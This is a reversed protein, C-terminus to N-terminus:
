RRSSGGSGRRTQSAITPFLRGVEITTTPTGGGSSKASQTVGVIRASAHIGWLRHRATVLDGLDFDVGYQFRGGPNVTVELADETMTELLKAQTRTDLGGAGVAIDNADVFLERRDWGTPEVAGLFAEVTERAAGEGQGAGLGWNKKGLDSTLWELGAATDFEPDLFVAGTLDQGEIVDFTFTGTEIDFIVEWGMSTVLGIDGLVETVPQFRAEYDVAVGRALDPAIVLGPLRRAVTAGPGAHLNVYHKMATEAVVATQVDHSAGSPPLVIREALMGGAERGTFSVTEVENGQDDAAYGRHVQEIMYARRGDPVYLLRGKEVPTSGIQNAELVLTASATEYLRRTWTVESFAEIISVDALDERNVSYLIM